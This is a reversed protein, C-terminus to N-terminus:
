RTVKRLCLDLIWEPTVEECVAPLQSFLQSQRRSKQQSENGAERSKVVFTKGSEQIATAMTPEHTMVTGMGAKVIQIIDEKCVPSDRFSRFYFRQGEFLGGDGRSRSVSHIYTPSSLLPCEVNCMADEVWKFCIIPLKSVIGKCLKVTRAPDDDRSYEKVLIHTVRPSFDSALAFVGKHRKQAARLMERAEANLGTPLIVIPEGSRRRRKYSPALTRVASRETGVPPNRGSVNVSLPQLVPAQADSKRKRRAKPSPTQTKPVLTPVGIDGDNEKERLEHTGSCVGCYWDGHPLGPLGACKLHCARSCGDCLILNGGIGCSMCEDASARAQSGGPEVQHLAFEAVDLEPALHKHKPCFMAYSGDQVIQCDKEAVACVLHYRAACDDVACVIAAGKRGCAERGCLHKKAARVAKEVNKFVNNCAYVKEAYFACEEHVRVTSKGKGAVSFSRLAGVDAGPAITSPDVGRPCFVCASVPYTSVTLGTARTPSSAASSTRSSMSVGRQETAACPSADMAPASEAPPREDRVSAEADGILIQLRGFSQVIQALPLPAARLARKNIPARCMPCPTRGMADHPTRALTHDVCTECLMHCCELQVPNTLSDQCVVCKVAEFCADLRASLSAVARMPLADAEPLPEAPPAARCPDGHEADAMAHRCCRRRSTTLTPRLSRLASAANGPCGWRASKGGVQVEPLAHNLESFLRAKRRELIRKARSIWHLLLESVKQPTLPRHRVNPHETTTRGKTTM